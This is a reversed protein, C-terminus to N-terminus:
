VYHSGDCRLSIKDSDRGTEVFGLRKCFNLGNINDKKVATVVFGHKELLPNLVAKINGRISATPKEAFGVHIENGKVIVGGFLKDRQVVPIVEWDMVAQVFDDFSLQVRNKVSQYILFLTDTRNM